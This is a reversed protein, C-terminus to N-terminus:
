NSQLISIIMIGVESSNSQSVVLNMYTFWLTYLM